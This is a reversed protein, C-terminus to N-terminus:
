KIKDHHLRRHQNNNNHLVKYMSIIKKTSLHDFIKDPLYRAITKRVMFAIVNYHAIAACYSSLTTKEVAGSHRM